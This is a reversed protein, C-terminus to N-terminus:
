HKQKLCFVAYSIAVHSSNLRPSKRDLSSEHLDLDSGFSHILDCLSSKGCMPLIFPDAIVVVKIRPQVTDTFDQFVFFFVGNFKDIVEFVIKETFFYEYVGRSSFDLYKGFTSCCEIKCKADMGVDSVM